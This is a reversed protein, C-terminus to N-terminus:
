NKIEIGGMVVLGRLILIDRSEPPPEKSKDEIGGMLVTAENLVKWHEPVKLDIGGWWVFVDLIAGGEVPKARRLDLEAGGMVTTAEGGRFSQSVVRRISMSWMAFTNIVSSPEETPGAVTQPGRSRLLLHVGIAMLALPWLEFPNTDIIDLAGALLWVGALLFTVGWVTHRATALGLLKATGIAILVLPWWRLIPESELIDLNDLTWLFGLTMVVLGLMVRGTARSRTVAWRREDLTGSFRGIPGPTEAM